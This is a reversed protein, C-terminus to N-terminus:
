STSEDSRGVPYGPTADSRGVGPTEEGWPIVPGRQPYGRRGDSLGVPYSEARTASMERHRHRARGRLLTVLGIGRARAEAELEGRVDDDLRISIPVGM